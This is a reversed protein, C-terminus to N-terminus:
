LGHPRLSDSKVSCSESITVHFIHEADDTMLFICILVMIFYCKVSVLIATILFITVPTPLSTFHLTSSHVQTEASLQTLSTLHSSETKRDWIQLSDLLPQDVSAPWPHSGPHPPNVVLVM